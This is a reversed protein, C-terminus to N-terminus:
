KPMLQRELEEVRKQRLELEAELEAVRGMLAEKEGMLQIIRDRLRIGEQLYSSQPDEALTEQPENQYEGFHGPEVGMYLYIANVIKDHLFKSATGNEVKNIDPQHISYHRQDDSPINENIKQNLTQALFRQSFGLRKRWNRVNEVNKM